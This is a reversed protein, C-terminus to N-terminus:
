FSQFALRKFLFFIVKWILKTSRYDNRCRKYRARLEKYHNVSEFLAANAQKKLMKLHYKYMSETLKFITKCQKYKESDMMQFGSTICAALGMQLEIDKQAEEYRGIFNVLEKYLSNWSTIKWDILGVRIRALLSTRTASYEINSQDTLPILSKFGCAICQYQVYDSDAGIQKMPAACNPCQYTDLTM